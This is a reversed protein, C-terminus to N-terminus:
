WVVLGIFLLMFFLSARVAQRADRRAAEADPWSTKSSVKSTTVLGVDDLYNWWDKDRKRGALEKAHKVVQDAWRDMTGKLNSLGTPTDLNYNKVELAKERTGVRFIGDAGEVGPRLDPHLSSTNRSVSPYFEVMSIRGARYADSELIASTVRIEGMNGYWVAPRHFGNRLTRFPDTGGKNLWTALRAPNDANKALVAL